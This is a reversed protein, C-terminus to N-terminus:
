KPEDETSDFNLKLTVGDQEELGSYSYWGHSYSYCGHVIQSAQPLVIEHAKCLADIVEDPTFTYSISQRKFYSVTRKM